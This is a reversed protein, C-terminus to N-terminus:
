LVFFNCVRMEKPKDRSSKRLPIWPDADRYAYYMEIENLIKNSRIAIGKITMLKGFDGWVVDVPKCTNIFRASDIVIWNNDTGGRTVLGNSIGVPQFCPDAISFLNYNNDYFFTLFNFFQVPVSRQKGQEQEM